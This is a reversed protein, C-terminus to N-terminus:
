QWQRTGLLVGKLRAELEREGPPQPVLEVPMILSFMSGRGEESEVQIESQLVGALERSIALGLGTGTHERTHTADRQYFKEFIRAQEERPIGPGNDIVSVRVRDQAGPDSSVLREARLIVVPARGTKEEPETFKVANSLFNFIIQQFKRPDTAIVPVDDAVELRLHIGKKEALPAILGVLGECAERLNVREVRVEVRGAEIKAMELLSNILSLLARGASLINELYRVRRAASPPPDALSADAKAQELLLEAFGIISNLPTRLEHSVNALFEGKVKAAQALAENAEELEHLKLDMAANIARLRDQTGQLDALMSNFAEGLEQFEDGTRLDARIGLNGERVREATDRLSRVPRLVVQRTIAYVVLLAALGVALGASALFVSNLFMLRAAEASTRDLLVISDVRPAGQVRSRHAKAYRYVRSAGSWRAEQYDELSPDGRFRELAERVFGDRRAEGEAQELSLERAVIGAREEAQGPPASPAIPGVMEGRGLRDWTDVMQRSLEMQGADVLDAMRIWPLWLAAAIILLIAGGFVVLCKGALSLRV